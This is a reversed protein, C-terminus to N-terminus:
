ALRGHLKNKRLVTSKDNDTIIPNYIVPRTPNHFALNGQYTAMYKITSWILGVLNHNGNEKDYPALLLISTIVTSIKVLYADTPQGNEAEFNERAAEFLTSLEELSMNNHIAYRRQRPHGIMTQQHGTPM